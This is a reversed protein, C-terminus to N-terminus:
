DWPYDVEEVRTCTLYPLLTGSGSGSGTTGRGGGATTGGASLDLELFNRMLPRVVERALRKVDDMKREFRKLNERTYLSDSSSSTPSAKLFRKLEERQLYAENSSSGLLRYIRGTNFLPPPAPTSPIATPAGSASANGAQAAAAAAAAGNSSRTSPRSNSQGNPRSTNSSNKLISPPPPTTNEVLWQRFLSVALWDLYANSPNVREGRSTTLTLRFLKAEVKAKAEELEDYKDEILDLVDDPLSSYRESKLHPLAAPWMGVVHILAEAFIIKSRALYGLKLYSPPYKAIQKFLRSGFRLLHHDIRPGVVELADYMDALNLLSKCEAYANAINLSNLNPAFNYMIRFFNDYDLLTPNLAEAPPAPATQPLHTSTSLATLNAMSRFFGSSPPPPKPRSTVPHPTSISVGFMPDMSPPKQVLIPEHEDESWDLEFRWRKTTAPATNRTVGGSRITSATDDGSDGINSPADLLGDEGIRALGQNQETAGDMSGRAQGRAWEDEGMSAEFFGSCQALILRHLLYKKEQGGAAIVVEVDGTVSFLPFENSPTYPTSSASGGHHSRSNSRHHRRATGSASARSSVSPPRRISLAAASPPPPQSYSPYPNSPPPPPLPARSRSAGRSSVNLSSAAAAASHPEPHSVMKPTHNQASRPALTPAPASVTPTSAESDSDSSSTSRLSTSYRRASM